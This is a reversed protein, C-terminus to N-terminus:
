NLSFKTQKNEANNQTTGIVVNTNNNNNSTEAHRQRQNNKISNQKNNEDENSHSTNTTNKSRHHHHHHKSHRNNDASLVSKEKLLLDTTPKQMILAVGAAHLTKGLIKRNDKHAAPPLLSKKSNLPQSAVTKIVKTSYVVNNNNNNNNNDEDHQDHSLFNNNKLEENKQEQQQHSVFSNSKTKTATSHDIMPHINSTSSSPTTSPAFCFQNQCSEGNMHKGNNINNNKNTNNNHNNHNNGVVFDKKILSLFSPNQNEIKNKHDIHNNEETTIIDFDLFHQQQQQQLLDYDEYDNKKNKKNNHNNNNNNNHFSHSAETPVIYDYDYECEVINSNNNNNKNNNNHNNGNNVISNKKTTNTNNNNNNRNNTNNNNNSEFINKLVVIKSNNNIKHGSISNNSSNNLTVTSVDEDDTNNVLNITMNGEQLKKNFLKAIKGVSSERHHNHKSHHHHHHYINNHQQEDNHNNNNNNLTSSNNRSTSPFVLPTHSNNYSNNNNHNSNNMHMHNNSNNDTIYYKSSSSSTTSNKRLKEESSKVPSHPQHQLLLSLQQQKENKTNNNNVLAIGDVFSFTKLKSGKDVNNSNNNINNTLEDNKFEIHIIPVNGTNSNKHGVCINNNNNNNNNNYNINNNNNYLSCSNDILKSNFFNNSNVIINDNSTGAINFVVSNNISHNNHVISSKRRTTQDKNPSLGFIIMVGNDRSYRRPPAIAASASAPKEIIILENGNGHNLGNINTNVLMKNKNVINNNNNNNNNNNEVAICSMSKSTFTKESTGNKIITTTNNSVSAEENSKYSNVQTSNNSSYNSNNKVNNNNSNININNSNNIINSEFNELQFGEVVKKWANCQEQADNISSSKNSNNNSNHNKNDYLVMANKNFNLRSNVPKGIFEKKARVEMMVSKRLRDLTKHKSKNIRSCPNQGRLDLIAVVCARGVSAYSNPTYKEPNTTYPSAVTVNKGFNENDTPAVENGVKSTNYNCELTYSHILGYSLYTSVRGSGEATLGKAQDGPDIRYMHEKSFLCGEYDFHPTNLAILKCFLQNQIQDELTELVNGYIFCGRKSAHAHLDLYLGLKGAQAYYEILSKAAFIAPQITSDPTNYYRNLNQGHQDMRFHGRFVGDPNLMPILKFVYRKRLEKACLDQPDMLLNLIGKFTHQAPVEGPHVRASIFIIDKNMFVPCRKCDNEPFLGPLLPEKEKLAVGEMSSITLLDIRRGDCSETLLERQCFISDSTDFDNTHSEMMAALENQLTSYSYPYTFAFYIADNETDVGHEFVMFNIDDVKSFRVSSKIRQWKQNTSSSRYVPRMDHKYLGTHNAANVLQIRLVCGLPLGTVVFHFWACHRSQFSSNMNDPATWIKYEYSKNPVREAKALNGNDFNSSIVVGDFMFVNHAPIKSYSVSM